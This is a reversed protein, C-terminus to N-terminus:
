DLSSACYQEHQHANSTAGWVVLGPTDHASAPGSGSTWRAGGEDRRDLCVFVFSYYYRLADLRIHVVAPPRNLTTHLIYLVASYQIHCRGAQLRLQRQLQGRCPHPTTAM